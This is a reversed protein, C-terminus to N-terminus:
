LHEARAGDSVAALHTDPLIGTAARCGERLALMLSEAASRATLAVLCGGFGGGSLKAGIVGPAAMALSQLLDLRPTSNEFWDRSSQHSADMARGFGALDGTRLCARGALVRENEFVVHRARKRRGPDLGAEHRSFLAPSVDRLMRVSPDHTRFWAAAGFCQAQMDNYASAVLAHKEMSNCIVVALDDRNLPLTEYEYSRCDLFLAHNRRGFVSSFQDLIGCKMGVFNNEAGRCMRALDFPEMAYPQLQRLFIATAVELAASSSLGTGLPLSSAIVAEFGGPALGRGRLEHVVGQVYDIWAGQRLPAGTDFAATTNLDLSHVRAQGDPRSRGVMWVRLDLAVAIIYGENYDTHNGILEVRGPASAAAMPDGGFERKFVAAARDRLDTM